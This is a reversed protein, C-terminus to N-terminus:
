WCMLSQSWLLSTQQRLCCGRDVSQSESTAWKLKRRRQSPTPRKTPLKQLNQQEEVSAQTMAREQVVQSAREGAALDEESVSSESVRVPQPPGQNEM